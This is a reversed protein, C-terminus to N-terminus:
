IWESLTGSPKILYEDQSDAIDQALQININKETPEYGAAILKRKALDRYYEAYPTGYLGPAIRDAIDRLDKKTFGVYKARPDYKKVWEPGFSLVDEKTLEHATRNNFSKETLEKLSQAQLPSTVNWVGM